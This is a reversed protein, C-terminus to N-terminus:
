FWAGMVTTIQAGGFVPDAELMPFAGTHIIGPEPHWIHWPNGQNDLEHSWHGDTGGESSAADADSSANVPSTALAGAIGGVAAGLAFGLSFGEAFTGYGLANHAVGGIVGGTIGGAAAGALGGLFGGGVAGGALGGTVVSAGVIAEIVLIKDITSMSIRGTAVGLFGVLEGIPGGIIGFAVAGLIDGFISQGSPDTFMVPNNTGYSYKNVVTNPNELAGPSSDTQLFRGISPDYYRARNFYLGSEPDLERGAYAYTTGLVPNASIDNGAGDKVALKEGYASYVNHQLITGSSDAIDSVSGQYDKLYFYSQSNQAIKAAVGLSTVTV